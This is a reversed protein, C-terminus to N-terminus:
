VGRIRGVRGTGRWGIGSRIGVLHGHPGALRLWLRKTQEARVVTYLNRFRLLAYHHTYESYTHLVGYWVTSMSDTLIEDCEM